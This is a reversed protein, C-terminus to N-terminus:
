CVFFVKFHGKKLTLVREISEGRREKKRDPNGVPIVTGFYKKYVFPHSANSFELDDSDIM